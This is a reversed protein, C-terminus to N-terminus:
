MSAPGDVAPVRLRFAWESGPDDPRWFIDLPMAHVTRRAPVYNALWAVAGSVILVVAYTWADSTNVGFLKTSTVRIALIWLLRGAAAGYAVATMSRRIVQRAPAGDTAGLALRIGLERNRQSLLYSAVGWIEAATLLLALGGFTGLLMVLSRQSAISRDIVEEDIVEEMTRVVSIPVAPGALRRFENRAPAFLL